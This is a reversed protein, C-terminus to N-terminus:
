FFKVITVKRHNKRRKYACNRIRFHNKTENRIRLKVQKWLNTAQLKFEEFTDSILFYITSILSIGSLNLTRLTLEGLLLFMKSVRNLFIVKMLSGLEEVETHFELM